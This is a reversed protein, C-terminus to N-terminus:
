KGTIRDLHISKVFTVDTLQKWVLEGRRDKLLNNFNLNM